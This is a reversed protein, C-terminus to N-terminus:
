DCSSLLSKGIMSLHHYRDEAVVVGMDVSIRGLHIFFVCTMSWIRPNNDIFDYRSGSAFGYWSFVM